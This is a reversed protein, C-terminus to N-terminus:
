KHDISNTVYGIVRQYIHAHSGPPQADSVPMESALEWLSLSISHSIRATIRKYKEKDEYKKSIKTNCAFSVFLCVLLSFCSFSFLFCGGLGWLKRDHNSMHSTGM